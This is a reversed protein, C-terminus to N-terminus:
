RFVFGNNDVESNHTKVLFICLSDPVSWKSCARKELRRLGPRRAASGDPLVTLLQM